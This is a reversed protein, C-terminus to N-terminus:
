EHTNFAAQSDPEDKEARRRMMRYFQLATSCSGGIGLLIGLIMVWAGLDFRRQLWWCVAVCLIPPAALSFGLQTLFVLDRLVRNWRRM